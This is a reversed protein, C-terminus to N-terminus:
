GQQQGAVGKQQQAAISNAENRSSNIRKALEIRQAELNAGVKELEQSREELYTITSETSKEVAVNAGIGVILSSPLSVDTGMFIGAGLPVLTKSADDNSLNKIAELASQSELMARTISSQRNTVENFSNELVRIELILRQLREESLKLM